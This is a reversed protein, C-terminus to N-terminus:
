NVPSNLKWQAEILEAAREFDRQLASRFARRVFFALLRSSPEYVLSVRLETIGEAEESLEYRAISYNLPASVSSKEMDTLYAYEGPRDVILFRQVLIEGNSMSITRVSGRDLVGASVSGSHDFAVNVADVTYDNPRRVLFEFVFNIPATITVSTVSDPASRTRQLEQATFVDSLREAAELMSIFLLAATTVITLKTSSM